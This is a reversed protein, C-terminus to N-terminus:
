CRLQGRCGSASSPSGQTPSPPAAPSSSPGWWFTRQEPFLQPGPDNNDRNILNLRIVLRNPWYETKLFHIFIFVSCWEETRYWEFTRSYNSVNTVISVLVPQGVQAPVPWLQEVGQGTLVIDLGVLAVVGLLVLLHPWEESVAGGGWIWLCFYDM